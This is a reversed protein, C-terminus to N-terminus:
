VPTIFTFINISNSFFEMEFEVKGCATEIFAKQEISSSIDGLAKIESAFEPKLKLAIDSFYQAKLVKSPIIYKLPLDEGTVGEQFVLLMYPKLSKHALRRATAEYSVSYKDALEKVLSATIKPRQHAEKELKGGLFIMESAFENAEVEWKKDADASFDENKCIYLDHRHGPLVYHAVEHLISFRKRPTYLNSQVAIIRDPFSILARPMKELKLLGKFEQFFDMEICKLELYSLIKDIDLSSAAEQATKRLLYKVIEDAEIDLFVSKIQDSSFANAEM